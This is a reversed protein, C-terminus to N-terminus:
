KLIFGSPKDKGSLKLDEKTTIDYIGIGNFKHGSPEFETPQLEGAPIYYDGFYDFNYIIKDGLTDTIFNEGRFLKEPTNGNFSGWINGIGSGCGGCSTSFYIWGNQAWTLSLLKISNPEDPFKDNKRQEWVQKVSSDKLNKVVLNRDQQFAVSNEDPSVPYILPNDPVSNNQWTSKGEADMYLDALKIVVERKALKASTVDARESWPFKVEEIENIKIKYLSTSMGKPYSLGDSIATYIALGTSNWLLPGTIITSFHASGEDKTLGRDEKTSLDYLHLGYFVYALYKGDPSFAMSQNYLDDATIGLSQCSNKELDFLFIAGQTFSRKGEKFDKEWNPNTAEQEKSPLLFALIKGDASRAVNWFFTIKKGECLIQHKREDTGNFNISRIDPKVPKGSPPYFYNFADYIFRNQWNETVPTINEIPTINKSPQALNRRAYWIGAYFILGAIIIAVTSFIGLKVWDWKPLSPTPSSPVAGSQHQLNEEMFKEKTKVELKLTYRFYFAIKLKNNEEKM